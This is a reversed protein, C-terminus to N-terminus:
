IFFKDVDSLFVDFIRELLVASVIILGLGATVTSSHHYSAVSAGMTANGQNSFGFSPSHLTM